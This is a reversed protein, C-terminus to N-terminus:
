KKGVKVLTKRGKCLLHHQSQLSEDAVVSASAARWIHSTPHLALRLGQSFVAFESFQSLSIKVRSPDGM